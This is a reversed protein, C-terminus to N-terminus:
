AASSLSDDDVAWGGGIVLYDCGMLNPYIGGYVYRSRGVSWLTAICLMCTGLTPPSLRLPGAHTAFIILANLHALKMVTGSRHLSHHITAAGTSGLLSKPRATPAQRGM